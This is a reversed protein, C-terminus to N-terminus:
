RCRPGVDDPFRRHRQCRHHPPVGGADGGLIKRETQADPRRFLTMNIGANNLLIDLRGFRETAARVIRPASDDRTVDAVVDLIREGAGSAEAAQGTEDLAEADLETAAVRAGARLLRADDGPRPRAGRWHCNRSKWRATRGHCTRMRDHHSTRPHRTRATEVYGDLAQHIGEAHRRRGGLWRFGAAGRGRPQAGGQHRRGRDQRRYTKADRRARVARVLFQSRLESLRSPYVDAREAREPEAGHRDGRLARLQGSAVFPKASGMEGMVMPIHGGLLDQMAPAVGRYAVHQFKTGYLLNFMEGILHPQSGAGPSGFPMPKTKAADVLEKMTHFPGSPAVLCILPSYALVTVGSFDRMPDYTLNHHLYQAIAHSGAVGILVTYGDAPQQVVYESAIAGVAGAKNEVIVPQGWAESLKPAVLRAVIDVGGGPAFPVVLRVPRTPFDAPQARTAFPLAAIALAAIACLARGM